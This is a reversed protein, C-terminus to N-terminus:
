LTGAIALPVRSYEVKHRNPDDGAILPRFYVAGNPYDFYYQGPTLAQPGISNHLYPQDDYFFDEPYM